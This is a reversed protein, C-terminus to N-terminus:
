FDEEQFMPGMIAELPWFAPESNWELLVPDGSKNIAVDWGIFRVYPFREHCEKCKKLLGLYNPIMVSGFSVENDPYKDRIKVGWKDYAENKLSGDSNIFVYGGGSATNDTRTEGTGFRLLSQGLQVKGERDLFTFVRVTNVSKSSFAGLQEHQEIVPQVVYSPIHAYHELNLEGPAIFEVQHGGLSLDEKIVVEKNYDQLLEKARVIPVKNNNGDYYNPGVKSLLPQLAFDPFMRFDFTKYESIRAKTPNHKDLLVASYYDDPIWGPVFEGRVETYIALWPWFSSSGFRKKAYSKMERKTKWEVVSGGKHQIIKKRISHARRRSFFLEGRTNIYGQVKKIASILNM